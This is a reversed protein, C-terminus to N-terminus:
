GKVVSLTYPATRSGANDVPMVEIYYTGATGAKFTLTENATGEVNAEVEAKLTSYLGVSYVALRGDFTLGTLNVVVTQNTNLSIAYIDTDNRDWLKGTATAGAAIPVAIGPYDNPEMADQSSTPYIDNVIGVAKFAAEISSVASPYVVKSAAVLADRLEIFQSVSSIRKNAMVDYWISFAIKMSTSQTSSIPPVTVGNFTGGVVALYFAKNAIGSNFHVGGADYSVPAGFYTSMRDPQPMIMEESAPDSFSRFATWPVNPDTFLDDGILWNPAQAYNEVALGFVDAFHENLAGSEHNYGLNITFENVGHNLEHGVVDLGAVFPPFQYGFCDGGMGFMMFNYGYGLWGANCELAYGPIGNVEVMSSIPLGQGDIGNRNYTSKYFDLTTRFFKHSTVGAPHNNNSTENFSNDRSSVYDVDMMYTENSTFTYIDGLDKTNQDVLNFAGKSANQIYVSFLPSVNTQFLRGKQMALNNVTAGNVDVGTGTTMADHYPNEARFFSGDHADIFLVRPGVSELTVPLFYVLRGGDRTPHVYLKADPMDLLDAGVLESIQAYIDTASLTPTTNLRLNGAANSTVGRVIGQNDMHIVINGNYVPVGQFRQVFDLHAGGAVDYTTEKLSLEGGQLPFLASRATLFQRAHAELSRGAPRAESLNGTMYRPMGYPGEHVKLADAGKESRVRLQELQASRPNVGQAAMLMPTTALLGCLLGGSLVVRSSFGPTRRTM